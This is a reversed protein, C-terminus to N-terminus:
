LRYGAASADNFFMKVTDLSFETLDKGLTPLKKLLDPTVTIIHCGVEDAQVINYLERSSAWLLEAVPNDALIRRCDAMIPIPDRGADAIRGAFVSIVSPVRHDLAEAIRSVQETTFLATVNLKVGDSALDKVLPACSTGDTMSVPIKVYVNPGWSDIMRAQRLIEDPTDAFVEFSIPKTPIADLVDRAFAVYDTVGSQRMLTPNTTLGQVHDLAALEVMANLSAGDAYLKVRLNNHHNV